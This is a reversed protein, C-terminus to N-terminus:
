PSARPAAGADHVIVRNRGAGKAQYLAADAARLLADEDIGHGPFIAVGISVTVRLPKEGACDVELTGIAARIAEARLRAGEVHADPLVIAFEEGGYRCCLDIARVAATTAGAVEKLVRDGIAHGYTDNVRKFHDIDMLMVALPTNNRGARTLERPLVEHLFRRNHLGTLPDTIAQQHLDHLARQLDADRAQLADAMRDFAAGLQALEDKGHALGTRAGLKGAQVQRAAGLLIRITRLAFVDAGYWALILLLLTAILIGALDRLMAHNAGAVVVSVPVSVIVRIPIGGDPNDAVAHFAVLRDIGDDGKAEIQGVRAALVAQLVQPSPFKSGVEEAAPPYRALVIGDRDIVTLAGREPLPVTATVKNLSKLSLGIFAVGTIKGAADTIPYGLNIGQQKTVRGIQYEGIAFKGTELALRIYLRDPSYLRGQWPIANCQLVRDAGYIGISHYLGASKSLLAALYDNCRATDNRTATTLLSIAVMTQKAGEIIQAEQQAALMAISQLDKRADMIAHAREDWARYLVVALMPLVGLMVLVIIRARTSLNNM